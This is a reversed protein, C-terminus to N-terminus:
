IYVFAIGKTTTTHIYGKGGERERKEPKRGKGIGKTSGSQKQAAGDNKENKNQTYSHHIETHTQTHTHAPCVSVASFVTFPPAVETLRFCCSCCCLVSFAFLSTQQLCLSEKLVGPVIVVTNTSSQWDHHVHTYRQTILRVSGKEEGRGEESTMSLMNRPPPPPPTPHEFLGSREREACRSATNVRVYM